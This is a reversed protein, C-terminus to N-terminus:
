PTGASLVSDGAGLNSLFPPFSWSFHSRFYHPLQCVSVPYSPFHYTFSSFTIVFSSLILRQYHELDKMAQPLLWQWEASRWCNFIIGRVDKNCWYEKLVVGTELPTRFKGWLLEAMTKTVRADPLCFYHGFGWSLFSDQLTKLAPIHPKGAVIIKSLCPHSSCPPNDETAGLWPCINPLLQCALSQPVSM